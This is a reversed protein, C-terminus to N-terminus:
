MLDRPRYYGEVHAVGPRLQSWFDVPVRVLAIAATPFGAQLLPHAQLSSPTALSCAMIETAPNHGIVMCRHSPDPLSQLLSFYRTASAEYLPESFVVAPSVQYRDWVSQMIAHTERTRQSASVLLFDPLIQKEFLLDAMFAAARRGRENLPREFDDVGDPWASKAHRMLLLQKM